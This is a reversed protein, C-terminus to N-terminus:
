VSTENSCGKLYKSLFLYAWMEWHYIASAGLTLIKLWPQTGSYPCHLYFLQFLSLASTDNIKQFQPPTTTPFKSVQNPNPSPNAMCNRSLHFSACYRGIRMSEYPHADAFIPVHGDRTPVSNSPMSRRALLLSHNSLCGEEQLFHLFM